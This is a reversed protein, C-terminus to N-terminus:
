RWIRVFALLSFGNQGGRVAKEESINKKKTRVSASLFHVSISRIHRKYAFPLPPLPQSAATSTLRKSIGPSFLPTQLLNHETLNCIFSALKTALLLTFPFSKMAMLAEGACIYFKTRRLVSSLTWFSFQRYLPRFLSFYQHNYVLKFSLTCTAFM